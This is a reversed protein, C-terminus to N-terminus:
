TFYIHTNSSNIGRFTNGYTGVYYGSNNGIWIMGEAWDSDEEISIFFLKPVFNFM